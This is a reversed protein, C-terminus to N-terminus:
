RLHNNHDIKHTRTARNTTRLILLIVDFKRPKPNKRFNLIIQCYYLHNIPTTTVVYRQPSSTITIPQHCPLHNTHHHNDITAPPPPSSHHSTASHHKQYPHHYLHHNTHHDTLFSTNKIFNKERIKGWYVVQFAISLNKRPIRALFM